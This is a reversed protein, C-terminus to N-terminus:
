RALVPTEFGFVGSVPLKWRARFAFLPTFEPDLIVKPPDQGLYDRHDLAM